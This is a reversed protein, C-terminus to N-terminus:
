RGIGNVQLTSAPAFYFRPQEPESGIYVNQFLKDDGMDRADSHHDFSLALISGKQNFSAYPMQFSETAKFIATLLLEWAPSSSLWLAEGTDKHKFDPAKEKTKSSRNDWWKDPNEVLNKWSEDGTNRKLYKTKHTQNDFELGELKSSVWEPASDLWLPVGDDKRKFDPFKPKVSGNLKDQRNDRWQKPNMILDRWLSLGSDGGKKLSHLLIHDISEEKSLCLYCGNALPWGRRQIWDLTLVKKWITEWALFGVLHDEVDSYVRRRQLRQLFREVDSVEWHNLRKSFYPDWVGGGSHSWVDKVWAEEYSRWEGEEERYKGCIVQRWLAEREVGKCKDLCVISWNVLHPKRVLAEGGWLFDKQIRELRLRVRKQGFEGDVGVHVRVVYSALEFLDDAKLSPECFVLTDDTFLFHSIEVGVGGRGNFRWRSLFGGEKARKLLCHDYAKEIDLKCLIAGGGGKQMSDIAENAILLADLIQRGEVFANQSKSAVKGVVKKLRNAIVNALLKYLNDVLSIPRFDKLDEAGGKKPILMFFSANISKMFRDWEHFDNFFGMVELEAFGLERNWAKSIAKLAKLKESMIFSFSGRFQLGDVLKKAIRLFKVVNFDGGICWPDQSLGRIAGLEEWFDERHRRVSPGYVWGRAMGRSNLAGWELFRSLFSLHMFVLEVKKEEQSICFPNEFTYWNSAVKELLYLCDLLPVLFSPAGGAYVSCVPFGPSFIVYSHMANVFDLPFGEEKILARCVLPQRMPMCKPVSSPIKFYIFDFRVYVGLTPVHNWMGLKYYLVIDRTYTNMLLILYSILLIGVFLRFELLCGSVVGSINDKPPSFITPLYTKSAEKLDYLWCYCFVNSESKITLELFGLSGICSYSRIEQVCSWYM